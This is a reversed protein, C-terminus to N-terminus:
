SPETFDKVVDARRLHERQSLKRGVSGPARADFVVIEADFVFDCDDEDGRDDLGHRKGGAGSGAPQRGRVDGDSEEPLHVTLSDGTQFREPAGALGCTLADGATM